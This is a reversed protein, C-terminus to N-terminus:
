QFRVIDVTSKYRKDAAEFLADAFKEAFFLSDPLVNQSIVQLAAPDIHEFEMLAAKLEKLSKMAQESSVLVMYRSNIDKLDSRDLFSIFHDVTFLLKERCKEIDSYDLNAVIDINRPIMAKLTAAMARTHNAEALVPTAQLKIAAKNFSEAGKIQRALLYVTPAGIALAAWGGLASIWNRVCQDDDGYCWFSRLLLVDRAYM